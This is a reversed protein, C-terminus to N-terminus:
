LSKGRNSMRRPIIGIVNMGLFIEIDEATKITNDIYEMLFAVMGGVLLTAIVVLIINRLKQPSSPMDPKVAKDVLTVNKVGMLEIVRKSFVGATSNALKMAMEPNQDKVSIQIISTGDRASVSINNILEQVSMGKLNLERIVAEAVTRSRIIEAYDKALQQGVMVDNYLEPNRMNDQSLILITTDANYVPSLVFYNIYISIGSAAVVLAIILWLRKVIINIYQKFEMLYGVKATLKYLNVAFKYEM